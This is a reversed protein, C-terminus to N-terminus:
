EFDWHLIIDIGETGMHNKLVLINVGGCTGNIVM